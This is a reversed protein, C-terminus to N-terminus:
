STLQEILQQRRGIERHHSITSPLSRLSEELYELFRERLPMDQDFAAARRYTELLAGIRGGGQVGRILRNVSPRGLLASSQVWYHFLDHFPKGPAASTEWDVLVWRNGARLLNWPAFDGHTVGSSSAGFFLGMAQAVQVPLSWPRIRPTWPIPEFVLVGMDSSLVTPSQLPHPLLNGFKSIAAAERSLREAGDSDLAVKLFFKLRGERDATLVLFRNPHNARSVALAGLDWVYPHVAEMLAEPPLAGRPSLRDLRVFCAMRALHWGALGKPTVPQYVKLTSGSSVSPLHGLFWRPDKRTPLNIWSLLNLDDLTLHRAVQGVLNNVPQEADLFLTEGRIRSTRWQHMQRVIEEEPLEKKRRLLAKPPAELVILLTPKPLFVGFIRISRPGIGLRYRIPDVALDQWGREVIVLGGRRLVPRIRCIWGLLYDTFLYLLKTWSLIRGYPIQGHPELVPGM